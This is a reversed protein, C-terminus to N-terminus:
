ELTRLFKLISGFSIEHNKIQQKKLYIIRENEKKGHEFELWITKRSLVKKIREAWEILVINEPKSLIKKFGLPACESLKKIRYADIHYLSKVMSWQGDAKTKPIKYSRIILFTPSLLRCKIGIARAFGQIFTTKGSGLDGKLGFVLANKGPSKKVFKKALTAALKKTESSSKTKM